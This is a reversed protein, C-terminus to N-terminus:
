SLFVKHFFSFRKLYCSLVIGYPGVINFCFYVLCLITFTPKTTISLVILWIILSHVLNTCLSYLVLYSEIPFNIWLSNHLFNFNTWVFLHYICLEFDTRSFSVWLSWQSKSICISWRIKVLHGSRTVTFLFFVLFFSFRDLLPSQRGPM